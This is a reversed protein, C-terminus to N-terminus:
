RWWIRSRLEEIWERVAYRTKLSFGYLKLLEPTPKTKMRLNELAELCEEAANLGRKCNAINGELVDREYGIGHGGAIKSGIVFCNEALQNIEPIDIREPYFKEIFNHVAFGFDYAIRYAPIEEFDREDERDDWPKEPTRWSEDVSEFPELEFAEDPKEIGQEEVCYNHNLPSEKAKKLEDDIRKLYEDVRKDAEQMFKEWKEEDWVEDDFDEVYEFNNNLKDM